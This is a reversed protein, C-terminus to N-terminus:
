PERGGQRTVDRPRPPARLWTSEAPVCFEDGDRWGLFRSLSHRAADCSRIRTHRTSDLGTDSSSVCTRSRMSLHASATCAPIQVAHDGIAGGVDHHEVHGWGVVAHPSDLGVAFGPRREELPLASSGRELDDRELDDGTVVDRERVSQEAAPSGLFVLAIRVITQAEGEPEPLLVATPDDRM